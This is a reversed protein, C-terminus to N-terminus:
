SVKYGMAYLVDMLLYSDLNAIRHVEGTSEYWAVLTVQDRIKDVKYMYVWSLGNSEDLVKYGDDRYKRVVQEYTKLKM